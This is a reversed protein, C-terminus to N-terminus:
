RSVPPEGFQELEFTGQRSCLERTEPVKIDLHEPQDRSGSLWVLRYEAQHSFSKHKLFLAYQQILAQVEERKSRRSSKSAGVNEDPLSAEILRLHQYMCPGEGGMRFGPVHRSVRRGFEAPDHIRIFSDCGFDRMLQGNHWLTTCLLYVNENFELEHLTKLTGTELDSIALRLTGEELDLRQEDLHKRCKAFSTLRLSGDNFFADVFSSDLYRYVVPSFTRWRKTYSTSSGRLLPAPPRKNLVGM